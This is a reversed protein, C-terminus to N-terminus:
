VDSILDSVFMGAFTGVLGMIPIPATLIDGGAEIRVTVQGEAVGSEGPHAGTMVVPQPLEHELM